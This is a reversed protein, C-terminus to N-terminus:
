RFYRREADRAPAVKVAGDGGPVTLPSVADLGDVHTNGPPERDCQGRARRGESEPREGRPRARRLRGGSRGPLVRHCVVPLRAVELQSRLEGGLLVLHRLALRGLRREAVLEPVVVLGPDVDVDDGALGEEAREVLEVRAGAPRAEGPRDDGPVDGLALVPLEEHPPGLNVRLVGARM